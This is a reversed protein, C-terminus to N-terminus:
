PEDGTHGGHHEPGPVGSDAAGGELAEGDEEAAGVTDGACAVMGAGEGEEDDLGAEKGSVVDLGADGVDSPADGADEEARGDPERGEGEAGEGGEKRGEEDRAEKQINDFVGTLEYGSLKGRRRQVPKDEVVVEAISEHPDCPEAKEIHTIDTPTLHPDPPPTDNGQRPPTNEDGVVVRDIRYRTVVSGPKVASFIGDGDDQRGKDEIGYSRYLMRQFIALTEAYTKLKSVTLRDIEREALPDLADLASELTKLRKNITRREAAQLSRIAAIKDGTSDKAVMQRARQNAAKRLEAWKDRKAIRKVDEVPEGTEQAITDLSKDSSLYLSLASLLPKEM